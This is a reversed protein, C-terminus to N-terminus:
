QVITFTTDRTWNAKTEFNREGGNSAIFVTGKFLRIYRSGHGWSRFSSKENGQFGKQPCFTADDAFLISEDWQDLRIQFGSHRLFHGPRDEAEFSVCEENALGVRVRWTAMKKEVTSSNGSIGRVFVGSISDHTIYSNGPTVLPGQTERRKFESTANGDIQIAILTGPRISPGDILSAPRYQAGQINKQVADEIRDDPYGVVMAGEYFTGEGWPSNDGGVGLVIDGEKSMPTYGNPPRAGAFHTTMGSDNAADAGRVSWLHPKGKVVATVFRSTSAPVGPNEGYGSGAWLGNELDALIWPGTKGRGNGPGNMKGFYITEMHGNGTDSVTSEVNGYDFCCGDNTHSGDLVAYIGEPNEGVATGNAGVKRYGTGPSIFVGYAKRDGVMVPAAVANALEDRGPRTDGTAAQTLHNGHPSQDFIINISCTTGNCFADQSASDAIGGIEVISVNHALSDSDRVIQYLPGSYDRYLARVTSHAAVCATNGIAYIDCPRADSPIHYTSHLTLGLALSLIIGIILTITLVAVALSPAKIAIPRAM